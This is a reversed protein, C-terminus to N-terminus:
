SLAALGSFAMAMLPAVGLFMIALFPIAMSTESYVQSTLDNRRKIENTTNVFTKLNSEMIVIVEEKAYEKIDVLLDFMDAFLGDGFHNKILITADLPSRTYIRYAKIFVDQQSSKIKTLALMIEDTSKSSRLMLIVFMMLMPLDKNKNYIAKKAKSSLIINPILGLLLSIMIVILIIKLNFAVPEVDVNFLVKYILHQQTSAAAIILGLLLGVAFFVVTFGMYSRVTFLKNYYGAVVLKEKIKEGKTSLENDDDVFWSIPKVFSYRYIWNYFPHSFREQEVGLKELRRQTLVMYLVFLWVIFFSGLVMYMFM